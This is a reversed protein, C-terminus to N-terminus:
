KDHRWGKGEFNSQPHNLNSRGKPATLRGPLDLEANYDSRRQRDPDVTRAGIIGIRWAPIARYGHLRKGPEHCARICLDATARM